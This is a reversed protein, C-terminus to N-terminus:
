WRKDLEECIRNYCRKKAMCYEYAEQGPLFNNHQNMRQHRLIDDKLNVGYKYEHRFGHIDYHAIFGNALYLFNYGRKNLKSIDKCAKVVNDVTLEIEKDTMVMKIHRANLMLM